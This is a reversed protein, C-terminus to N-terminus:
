RVEMQQDKIAIFGFTSAGDKDTLCKALGKKALSTKGVGQPGWVLVCGKM